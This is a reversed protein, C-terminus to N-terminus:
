GHSNCALKTEEKLSEKKRLQCGSILASSLARWDEVSRSSAPNKTFTLTLAQLKKQLNIDFSSTPLM